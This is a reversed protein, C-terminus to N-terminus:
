ITQIQGGHCTLEGKRRDSIVVDLADLRNKPSYATREQLIREVQAREAPTLKTTTLRQFRDDFAKHAKKNRRAQSVTKFNGKGWNREATYHTYNKGKRKM